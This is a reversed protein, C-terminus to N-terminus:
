KIFSMSHTEVADSYQLRYFYTGSALGASGNRGPQFAAVHRGASQHEDALLAVMRGAADFVQLTAHSDKPLSYPITTEPNFPNPFNQGLFFDKAGSGANDGVSQAGQANTRVILVWVPNSGITYSKLFSLRGTVTDIRYASVKGSTQGGAYLFNGAPDIAFSRPMKETPYQAISTMAGTAPDLGCAAISDPGRNTAYLFRGDPTLHVDAGGTNAAIALGHPDGPQMSLTQMPALTGKSTDIRFATVSRGFENAVYAVNLLPHFAMHRPGTSDPTGIRDPANPTLSGSSEGFRYQLIAEGTRCPVFLFRNSRDTQISHPNTPTTLVHLASSLVAGDTGIGYVAARSDAFHATFLYKGTRDTGLYVPNWGVSVSGLLTLDGTAADIRFSAVSNTSRIAAYLYRRTPDVALAGPQGQVPVAKVFALDGTATDMGYVAILQQSDVSVYVFTDYQIAKADTHLIMILAIVSILAAHHSKM